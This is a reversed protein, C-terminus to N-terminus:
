DFPHAYPEREKPPGYDADGDTAVVYVEAVPRQERDVESCAWCFGTTDCTCVQM